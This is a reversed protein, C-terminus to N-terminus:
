DISHFSRNYKSFSMKITQSINTNRQLPIVYKRMQNGNEVVNNKMSGTIIHQFVLYNSKFICYIATKRIYLFFKYM